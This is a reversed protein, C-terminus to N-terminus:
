EREVNGRRLPAGFYEEYGKVVMELELRLPNQVLHHWVLTSHRSGCTDPATPCVAVPVASWDASCQRKRRKTSKKKRPKKFLECDATLPEKTPTLRNNPLTGGRPYGATASPLPLTRQQPCPSHAHLLFVSPLPKSINLM